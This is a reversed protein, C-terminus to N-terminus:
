TGEVRSGVNRTRVIATHVRRRYGDQGPVPDRNETAQFFGQTFREDESRTRSVINLRVSRLFSADSTAATYPTGSIGRLEGVDPDNNGNTDLFYIIQMDEIGDALLLNNRYLKVSDIRYELAPVAILATPNAGALPMSATRIIVDISPTALNVSDIVGCVSGRAPNM